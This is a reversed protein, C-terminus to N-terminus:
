KKEHYEKEVNVNWISSKDMINNDIIEVARMATLMSHDMNNYRHQGNRGICYLNDIKNLYDVVCDINSYTDFYAPYAKKVRECHSYKVDDQEVIGMKVLENTAFAVLEDDSLNWFSDNEKCFISM